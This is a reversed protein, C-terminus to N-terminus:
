PRQPARSGSEDMGPFDELARQLILKLTMKWWSQKQRQLQRFFGVFFYIIPNACSTVYSLIVTVLYLSKPYEVSVEETWMLFISCVFLPLDCFLFVFITLRTTLNWGSLQMQQSGCWFKVLQALSFGSFLVFSFIMWAAIILYSEVCWVSFYDWDVFHCYKWQLISFLFSLTWILFCIIISTHRPRRYCYLIPCMGSLCCETSITSYFILNAICAFTSLIFFFSPFSITISHFYEIIEKLCEIIEVSLTLIEAGVLNLIYISIANKKMCFGLFWLVVANGILGFLATIFNLFNLTLTEMSVIPPLVQGSGNMPTPTTEWVSDTTEM